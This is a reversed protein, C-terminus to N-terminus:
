KKNKERAAIYRLAFDIVRQSWFQHNPNLANTVNNYSIDEMQQWIDRLDGRDLRDTIGQKIARRENQVEERTKRPTIKAEENYM